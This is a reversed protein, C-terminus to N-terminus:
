LYGFHVCVVEVLLLLQHLSETNCAAVSLIRELLVMESEM